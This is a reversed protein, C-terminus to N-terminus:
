SIALVSTPICVISERVCAAAIKCTAALATLDGISPSLLDIVMKGLETIRMLQILHSREDNVPNFGEDYAM